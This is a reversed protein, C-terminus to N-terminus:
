CLKVKEAILYDTMRGWIGILKLKDLDPTQHSQLADGILSRLLVVEDTTVEVVMKDHHIDIM